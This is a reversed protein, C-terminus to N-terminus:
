RNKKGFCRYKESSGEAAYALPTKHPLLEKYVTENKNGPKEDPFDYLRQWFLVLLLSNLIEKEYQL